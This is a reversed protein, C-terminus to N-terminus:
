DRSTTPTIPESRLRRRRVIGTIPNEANLRSLVEVADRYRPTVVFSESSHAQENEVRELINAREMAKITKKLAPLRTVTGTSLIMRVVSDGYIPKEACRACQFLFDLPSNSVPVFDVRSRLFSLFRNVVNAADESTNAIREGAEKISSCEQALGRRNTLDPLYHRVEFRIRQNTKAYIVLHIGPAVEADLLICNKERTFQLRGDMDERGRFERRVVESSCYARLDAELQKVMQVPSAHKFEWYTEVRQLSLEGGFTEIEWGTPPNWSVPNGSFRILECVRQVEKHLLSHVAELYERRRDSWSAAFSNARAVDPIWNDKGDLSFEDQTKGDANPDFQFLSARKATEDMFRSQAAPIPSSGQHRVYRTANLYGDFHLRVSMTSANWTFRLSGSFLASPRGGKKAKTLVNLFRKAKTGRDFIESHYGHNTGAGKPPASFHLWVADKFGQYDAPERGEYEGLQISGLDIKLEIKDHRANATSVTTAPSFNPLPM